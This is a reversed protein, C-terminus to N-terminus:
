GGIWHDTEAGVRCSLSESFWIVNIHDGQFRRGGTFAFAKGGLWAGDGGTVAQSIRAAVDVLHLWLIRGIISMDKAITAVRAM